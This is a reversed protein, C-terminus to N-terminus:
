AHNMAGALPLEIRAVTGRAGPRAAVVLKGRHHHVIENAIALGLGTGKGAPKTTFFPETARRAAEDGIGVGDDIVVFAVGDHSREVQVDVHGGKECADCANLVLNVLAQELLRPDCAIDPLSEEASLHLSVGAERFRHEVLDIAVTALGRPAVRELSPTGGRALTLLSRIVAGIREAQEGIARVARASREDREVRPALQEARGLIVGLPTSVEHAIGIALAGLTALRNADVLREDLVRVAEKIALERSLALEKQQNGLALMGFALVLGSSLAFGLVLRWLARRERDRERRATAVVVVRWRGGAADLFGSQGAMARREPLGLTLADMRSLPQYCPERDRATFLCGEDGETHELAPVRIHTGNSAIFETQGPRQMLALSEPEAVPAFSDRLDTVDLPASPQSSRRSLDAAVGRALTGQEHAFDALALSAERAEDWYAVGGLAAIAVVISLVISTPRMLRTRRLASMGQASVLIRAERLRPRASGMTM